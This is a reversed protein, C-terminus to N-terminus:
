LTLGLSQTFGKNKKTDATCSAITLFCAGILYYFSKMPILSQTSIFIPFLFSYNDFGYLASFGEFM